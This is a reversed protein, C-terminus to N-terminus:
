RELLGALADAHFGVLLTRGRRVMPARFGGTPGRLDDLTTAAAPQERLAKGRAVLVTDVQGLLARVEDDALPQARSSRLEDVAAARADLV